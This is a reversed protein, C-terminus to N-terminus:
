KNKFIFYINDAATTDGSVGANIIEIDHGRARLAKELQAPFSASEPLGYGATLSDGYAVIRLTGRFDTANSPMPVIDCWLNVLTALAVVQMFRRQHWPLSNKM